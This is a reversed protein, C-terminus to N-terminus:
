EYLVHTFAIRNLLHFFDLIFTFCFLVWPFYVTKNNKGVAHMRYVTEWFKQM